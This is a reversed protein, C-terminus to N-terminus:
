VYVGHELFPSVLSTATVRSIRLSNENKSDSQVTSQLDWRVEYADCTVTTVYKLHPPIKLLWILVRKYSLRSTFKKVPLYKVTVHM